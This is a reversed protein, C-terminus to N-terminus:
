PTAHADTLTKHGLRLREGSRLYTMGIPRGHTERKSPRGQAGPLRSAAHDSAVRRAHHSNCRLALATHAGSGKRHTQLVGLQEKM